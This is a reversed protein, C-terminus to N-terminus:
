YGEAPIHSELQTDCFLRHVFSTNDYPKLHVSTQITIRISSKIKAQKFCVKLLQQKHDEIHATNMKCSKTKAMTKM